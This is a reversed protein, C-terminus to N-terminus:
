PRRDCLLYSHNRDINEETLNIYELVESLEEFYM